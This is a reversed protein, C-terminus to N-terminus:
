DPELTIKIGPVPQDEKDAFRLSGGWGSEGNVVKFVVVNLGAQLEVDSITDEDPWLGRPRLNEYIKLGNLYVRAQDDSGVKLVLGKRPTAVQVYCVAYAVSRPTEEGLLGNFDVAYDRLPYERWVLDRGGITVKDGPRPRLTAEHSLQEVELGKTASQGAPLSIPALILWHRIAGPDNVRRVREIEAKWRAAEPQDPCSEYLMELRNMAGTVDDKANNDLAIKTEREKKM